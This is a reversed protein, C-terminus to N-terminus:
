GASPAPLSGLDFADARQSGGGSGRRWGRKEAAQAREDVAKRAAAENPASVSAGPTTAKIKGDPNLAQHRVRVKYSAGDKQLVALILLRENKGGHLTTGFTKRPAKKGNAM